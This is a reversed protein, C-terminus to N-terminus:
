EGKSKPAISNHLQGIRSAQRREEETMMVFRLFSVAFSKAMTEGVSKVTGYITSWSELKAKMEEPFFDDAMIDDYVQARQKDVASNQFNKYYLELQNNM